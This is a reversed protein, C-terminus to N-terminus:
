WLMMMIDVCLALVVCMMVCHQQVAKENNQEDDLLDSVEERVDGCLLFCGM